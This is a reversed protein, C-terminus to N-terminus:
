LMDESFVFTMGGMRVVDEEYLRTEGVLQYGNIFTGNSSHLDSIYYAGNTKVIQCHMRSISPDDYIIDCPSRRGLLWTRRQNLPDKRGDEYYFSEDDPVDLPGKYGSDYDEYLESSRKGHAVRKKLM